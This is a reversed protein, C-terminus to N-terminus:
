GRTQFLIKAPTSCIRTVDLPRPLRSLTIDRHFSDQPVVAIGTAEDNFGLKIGGLYVWKCLGGPIAIIVVKGGIGVKIRCKHDVRAGTTGCVDTWGVRVANRYDHTLM